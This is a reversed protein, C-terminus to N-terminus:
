ALAPEAAEARNQVVDIEAAESGSRLVLREQVFEREGRILDDDNM